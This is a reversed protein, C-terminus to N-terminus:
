LNSLRLKAIIAEEDAFSGSRKKSHLLKGDAHVEFVGGSSEILKVDM